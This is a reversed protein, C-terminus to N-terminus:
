SLDARVSAFEVMLLSFSLWWVLFEVALHSFSLWWILFEAV